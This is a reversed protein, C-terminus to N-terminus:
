AASHKLSIGFFTLCNLLSIMTKGKSCKNKSKPAPDVVVVTAKKTPMVINVKKTHITLPVAEAGMVKKVADKFEHPYAFRYAAMLRPAFALMFFYRSMEPTKLNTGKPNDKEELDKNLFGVILSKLVVSKSIKGSVPGINLTLYVNTPPMEATITKTMDNITEGEGLLNLRRIYKEVQGLDIRLESASDFQQLLFVVQQFFIDKAEPRVTYLAQRIDKFALYYDDISYGRGGFLKVMSELEKQHNPNVSLTTLNPLVSEIVASVNQGTWRIHLM